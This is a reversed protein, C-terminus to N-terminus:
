RLWTLLALERKKVTRSCIWRVRSTARCQDVAHFFGAEAVPRIGSILPGVCRPSRLPIPQRHFPVPVRGDQALDSRSQVDRLIQPVPLWNMSLETVPVVPFPKWSSAPAVPFRKDPLVTEPLVPVPMRSSFLGSLLLKVCFEMKAM